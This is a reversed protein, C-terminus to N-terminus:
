VVKRARACSRSAHSRPPSLGDRGELFSTSIPQRLRTPLPTACSACAVVAEQLRGLAILIRGRWYHAETSDDQQLAELADAPRGERLLKEARNTDAQATLGSLLAALLLAHPKM